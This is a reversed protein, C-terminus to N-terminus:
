FYQPGAQARDGQVHDKTTGGTVAEPILNGFTRGLAIVAVLDSGSHRTMPFSGSIAAM